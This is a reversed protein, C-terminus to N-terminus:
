FTGEWRRKPRELSTTGKPEKSLIKIRKEWKRWAQKTDGKSKM